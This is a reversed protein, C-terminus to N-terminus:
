NIEKITHLKTEIDRASIIINGGDLYNGPKVIPNDLKITIEERYNVTHQRSSIVQGSFKSGYYTGSIKLNEDAMKMLQTDITIEPKYYEWKIAM